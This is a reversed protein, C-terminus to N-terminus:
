NKNLLETDENEAAVYKIIAKEEETQFISLETELLFHYALKIIESSRLNDLFDLVKKLNYNDTTNPERVFLNGKHESRAKHYRALSLIILKKSLQNNNNFNTFCDMLCLDLNGFHYHAYMLEKSLIDDSISIKLSKQKYKNSISDDKIALIRKECDPHTKISDKDFEYTIEGGFNMSSKTALWREKFPYRPFNFINELSYNNVKKEEDISDLIELTTISANHNYNTNKLFVFGLSDAAFENTRSHYRVGYLRDKFIEKLRSYKNYSSSKINRVIKKIEKSNIYNTYELISHESDKNILHALEHCLIFALQDITELEKLLGLNILITNNGVYSANPWTYKTTFLYIKEKQLEPNGEIIDLLVKQVLSDIPNNILFDENIISQYIDAKSDSLREYFESYHEENNYLSLCNEVHTNYENAFEVIDKELKNSFPQLKDTQCYSIKASLILVFLLGLISLISNAIENHNMPLVKIM